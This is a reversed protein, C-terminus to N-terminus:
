NGGTNAEGPQPILRFAVDRDGTAAVREGTEFIRLFSNKVAESRLRVHTNM